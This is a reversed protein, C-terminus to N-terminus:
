CIFNAIRVKYAATGEPLGLNELKDGVLKGKELEELVSDGLAERWDRKPLIGKRMLNVECCAEIISQEVSMYREEQEM